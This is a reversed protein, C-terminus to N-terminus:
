AQAITDRGQVIPMIAKQQILSPEQFGFAYIGQELKEKLDMAPFRDVAQEWNEQIEDPAVLAALERSLEELFATSSTADTKPTMNVDNNGTDESQSHNTYSINQNSMKM